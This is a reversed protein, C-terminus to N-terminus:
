CPSRKIPISFVRHSCTTQPYRRSAPSRCNLCGHHVRAPAIVHLVEREERLRICSFFRHAMETPTGAFAPRAASTNARSPVPPGSPSAAHYATQRLSLRLSRGEAGGVGGRGRESQCTTTEEVAYSRVGKHHGDGRTFSVRFGGDPSTLCTQESWKRWWGYVNTRCWQLGCHHM